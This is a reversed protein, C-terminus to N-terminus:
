VDRQGDWVAKIRPFRLSLVGKRDQAETESFYEVTIQKGVQHTRMLVEGQELLIRTCYPPPHRGIINGRACKLTVFKVFSNTVLHHILLRHDSVIKEPERAWSIRQAVSMGSGVAVEFGKHKVVLAAVAEHEGYVGQIPLRQRSINLATVTYEADQWQKFKRIDNSCTPPPDAIAGLEPKVDSPAALGVGRGNLHSVIGFACLTYQPGHSQYLHPPFM